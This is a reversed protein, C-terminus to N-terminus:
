WRPGPRHPPPPPPGPRRPPPGYHPRHPPPPPGYHPGRHHPPPPGYRGRPPPGYLEQLESSSVDETTEIVVETTEAVTETQLSNTEEAAEVKDPSFNFALTGCVFLAAFFKGATKM